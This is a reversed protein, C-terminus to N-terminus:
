RLTNLHHKEKIRTVKECHKYLNDVSFGQKAKEDLWERLIAEDKLLDQHDVAFTDDMLFEYLSDHEKAVISVIYQEKEKDM